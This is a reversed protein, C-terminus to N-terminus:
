TCHVVHLGLAVDTYCNYLAQGVLIFYRCIHYMVTPCLHKQPNRTKIKKRRGNKGAANRQHLNEQFFDKMYFSIILFLSVRVLKMHMDVTRIYLLNKLLRLYLLALMFIYVCVTVQTTTPSTWYLLMCTWSNPTAQLGRSIRPNRPIHNLPLLDLQHIPDVYFAHGFRCFIFRYWLILFINIYVYAKQLM